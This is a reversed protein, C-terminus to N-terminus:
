KVGGFRRDRRQFEALAADMDRETFDPWLVDTFYLESYAGQWPLFNSLREEGSTRIILDPDPIGASYLYNGFTEETLEPATGDKFEQAYRRVARIIEDRGGYNICMNMQCGEYHTSKEEAAAMLEQLRPSLASIDGFFRMKFRDREMISLAEMMYKEFIAMITRVEEPPRKWNETSFAYVTLYEIGIDKCYNGIRRFAEAGAGHGATRPLGRAKAWRGNGDLIIAVHRPLRAFDVQPAPPQKKFIGM